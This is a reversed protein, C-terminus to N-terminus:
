SATSASPRRFGRSPNTACNSLRGPSPRRLFRGQWVRPDDPYRELAEELTAIAREFDGRTNLVTGLLFLAGAFEPAQPTFVESDELVVRLTKEALDEYEPGMGLYCQALPVLARAGDLTRPFRRACTQYADVASALQGSAQRLQGIRLLARPVLPDEPREISFARFLNVAREREGARAYLEAAQWSSESSRRENLANLHALDLYTAAAEAYGARAQATSAEIPRGAVEHDVKSAEDLQAALLSQLQALQQMFLTAQEVSRRDVLAVALGAYRVAEELRGAQRQKDAL